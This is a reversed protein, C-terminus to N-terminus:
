QQPPGGNRYAVVMSLVIAVFAASALADRVATDATAETGTTRAVWSVLGTLVGVLVAFPYTWM